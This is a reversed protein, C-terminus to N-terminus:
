QPPPPTPPPPSPSSSSGGSGSCGSPSPSGSDDTSFASVCSSSQQPPGEFASVSPGQSSMGCCKLQHTGALLAPDCAQPFGHNLLVAVWTCEAFDALTPMQLQRSVKLCAPIGLVCMCGLCSQSDAHLLLKMPPMRVSSSSSPASGPSGSGIQFNVGTPLTGTQGNATIVSYATVQALIWRDTLAASDHVPTTVYSQSSLLVQRYCCDMEPHPTTQCFSTM